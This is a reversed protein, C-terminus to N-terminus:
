VQNTIRELKILHISQARMSVVSNEAGPKDDAIIIEEELTDGRM